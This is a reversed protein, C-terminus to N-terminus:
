VLKLNLFNTFTTSIGMFTYVYVYIIKYIDYRIENEVSSFEFNFKQADYEDLMCKYKLDVREM